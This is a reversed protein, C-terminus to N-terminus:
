LRLLSESTFSISPLENILSRFVIPSSKVTERSLANWRQVSRSVFTSHSKPVIFPVAIRLEHTNRLDRALPSINLLFNRNFSYFNHVTKHLFLLDIVLRRHTKASLGITGQKHNLKPHSVRDFAKAFDFYIVDIPQGESISSTWHELADLMQLERSRKKRFGYQEDPFIDLNECHTIIPKCLLKEFIKSATVTLSIPRHNAISTNGCKKPIPKVHATKWQSPSTASTLSMNFLITLPVVVSFKCK